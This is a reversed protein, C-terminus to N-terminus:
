RITLAQIRLSKELKQKLLKVDNEVVDQIQSEIIENLKETLIPILSFIVEDSTLAELLQGAINKRLATGKKTQLLTLTALRRIQRTQQKLTAPLEDLSDQNLRKTGSNQPNTTKESPTTTSPNPQASTFSVEKHDIGADM